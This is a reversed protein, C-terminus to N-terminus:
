FAPFYGGSAIYWRKGQCEAVLVPCMNGNYGNPIYAWEVVRARREAWTLCDWSKNADMDKREHPTITIM